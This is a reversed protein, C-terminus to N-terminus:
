RWSPGVSEAAARHWDICAQYSSFRDANHRCYEVDPPTGIGNAWAGIAAAAVLAGAGVRLGM